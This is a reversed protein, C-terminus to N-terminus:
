RCGASTRVDPEVGLQYHPDGTPLWINVTGPGTTISGGLGATRAALGAAAPGVTASPVGTVTIALGDCHYGLRVQAPTPDGAGLAGEVLRYASLEVTAPLRPPDAPRDLDVQRGTARHRDCLDPLATLTPQPVDHLGGLLERMGALAARAAATVADLQAARAEEGAPARNRDPPPQETAAATVLRATERLVADRLGHGIRAREAHVEAVVRAAATALASDEAGSVRDHRARVARGSGWAALMPVTLLLAAVLGLFGAVFITILVSTVPDAPPADGSVPVTAAAVLGLGGAGVPVALWTPTRRRAAYRGVAYVAALEACGGFALGFLAPEPLLQLGVVLPWPLATALVAGLAHWPARRRLLLPAAHGILLLALLAFGAPDLVAKSVPAEEDILAFGVPIVVCGAFVTVDTLRAGGLRAHAATLWRRLGSAPRSVSTAWWGGRDAAPVPSPPTDDGASGAGPVVTADARAFSGTEVWGATRHATDQPVQPGTIPLVARVRWGGAPSPGATLWGGLEAARGAAGALGRGSGLPDAGVPRPHRAPPLSASTEADPPRNGGTAAAPPPETNDVEVDLGAPGQRLRIRVAGGPAYRLANTLAERVIAYAAEVVGPPGTPPLDLEMAVPQGLRRFGAALDALREALPTGSEREVEGLVTVLQHLAALTERGTDAAFDLAQGTLEPRRAALRRAASVTVIIATLHHASVDHLERALRHREVVAAQQRDAETQALREAARNRALRWRRRGRGLAATVLYCVAALAALVLHEQDVGLLQGALLSQWGTCALVASLTVWPTRHVAVSFLAILDAVGLVLLADVPTALQGFMLGLLVGTLAAVPAVRRVALAAAVVVTTAFAVAVPGAAPPDGRLVPIGPWVALQIAALLGPLLWDRTPRMPTRCYAAWDVPQERHADPFEAPRHGQTM